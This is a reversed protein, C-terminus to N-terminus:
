FNCAYIYNIFIEEKKLEKKTRSNVLDLLAVSKTKLVDDISQNKDTEYVFQKGSGDLNEYVYRLFIDTVFAIDNGVAISNTFSYDSKKSNEPITPLDGPANFFEKVLDSTFAGIIYDEIVFPINQDYIKTNESPQLNVSTAALLNYFNDFHLIIPYEIGTPYGDFQFNRSSGRTQENFINIIKTYSKDLSDLLLKVEAQFSKNFKPSITSKDKSLSYSCEETHKNKYQITFDVDEITDTFNSSVFKSIKQYFTKFQSVTMPELRKTSFFSLAIKLFDLTSDDKVNSDLIIIKTFDYFLCYSSDGSERNQIEIINEEGGSDITTVLQASTIERLFKSSIFDNAKKVFNEPLLENQLLGSNAKTYVCVVPFARSFTGGAQDIFFGFTEPELKNASDIWSQGTDKLDNSKVIGNSLLLTFLTQKVISDYTVKGLVGSVNKQYESSNSAYDVLSQIDKDSTIPDTLKTGRYTRVLDATLSKSYPFNGDGIQQPKLYAELSQVFLIDDDTYNLASDIDNFNFPSNQLCYLFLYFRQLDINDQMVTLTNIEGTGSGLPENPHSSNKTPTTFTDNFKDIDGKIYPLWNEVSVTRASFQRIDNISIKPVTRSM